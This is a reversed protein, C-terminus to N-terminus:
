RSPASKGAKLAALHGVARSLTAVKVLRLGAPVADVTNARSGVPTLFITAGASRADPDRLARPCTVGLSM